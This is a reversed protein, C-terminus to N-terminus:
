FVTVSVSNTYVGAYGNTPAMLLRFTYTGSALRVAISFTSSRTVLASAVVAWGKSTHRELYIRHGALNPYVNGYFKETSGSTIDGTYQARLGIATIPHALASVSGARSNVGLFLVEIYPHGTVRLSARAIGQNYTTAKGLFTWTTAGPQREYFRVNLGYLPRGSDADLVRASVDFLVGVPVIKPLGLLTRTGHLVVTSAPSLNGRSDEAWASFSYTHGLALQTVVVSTGTASYVGTGSTPTAPPTLGPAMRVIVHALDADPPNLWGVKASGTGGTVGLYEVSRPATTDAPSGPGTPPPQAADTARWAVSGYNGQTAGGCHDEWTLSLALVRGSPGVDFQSITFSGAEKSSCYGLVTDRPPAPAHVEIGAGSSYTGVGLTQGSPPLLTINWGQSSGPVSGGVTVGDVTGIADLTNAPAVPVYKHAGVVYDGLEGILYASNYGPVPTGNLAVTQSGEASDDAIM